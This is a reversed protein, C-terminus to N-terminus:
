FPCLKRADRWDGPPADWRLGAAVCSPSEQKPADDKVTTAQTTACGALLVFCLLLTLPKM